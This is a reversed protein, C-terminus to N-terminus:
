GGHRAALMIEPVHIDRPLALLLRITEAASAYLSIAAKSNDIGLKLNEDRFRRAVEADMTFDMEPGVMKGARVLTVRIGRPGVEQDLTRCYRELGAKTTQYAGLMAVKEVVTESGICLIHGGKEMLKLAARSCYMPGALNTDLAERIQANSAEELFFPKFVGANNILVDLGTTLGAIQAFAADVSDPDAVNCAIAHAAAGMEAAATQLKALNRGLLFVQWGDAALIRAMARGLGSGAGTIVVSKAM